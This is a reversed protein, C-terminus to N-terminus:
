DYNVLFRDSIRPYLKCFEKFLSVCSDDDVPVMNLYGYIKPLKIIMSALSFGFFSERPQNADVSQNTLFAVPDYPIMNYHM